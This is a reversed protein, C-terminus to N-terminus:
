QNCNKRETLVTVFNRKGKPRGKRNGSVGKRFRSRKPPKGYGVEYPKDIM